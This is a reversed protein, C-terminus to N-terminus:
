PLGRSSFLPRPRRAGMHSHMELLGEFVLANIILLAYGWIINAATQAAIGKGCITGAVVVM